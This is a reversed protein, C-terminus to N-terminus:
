LFDKCYLKSLLFTSIILILQGSILYMVILWKLYKGNRKTRYKGDALQKVTIFIHVAAEITGYIAKGKQVVSIIESTKLAVVLAFIIQPLDELCTSIFSMCTSWTYQEKRKRIEITLTIMQIIFLVTSFIAFALVPYKLDNIIKPRPEPAHIIEYVFSWDLALDILEMVTDCFLLFYLQSCPM